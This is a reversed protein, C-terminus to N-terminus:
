SCWSSYETLIACWCKDYKTLICELLWGRDRCQQDASGTSRPSKYEGRLPQIRVSALDGMDVQMFKVSGPDPTTALVVQIDAQARLGREENRCALIVHAGNRALELAMEYGVGLNAGPVIALKGKQSPMDAACWNSPVQPHFTTTKSANIGM